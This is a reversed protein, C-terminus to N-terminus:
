KRYASPYRAANNGAYRSTREESFYPRNAFQKDYTPAPAAAPTAPETNPAPVRAKKLGPSSIIRGKIKTQKDAIATRVRSRGSLVIFKGEWKYFLVPDTEGGVYNSPNEFVPETKLDIDAVDIGASPGTSGISQVLHLYHKVGNFVLLTKSQESM